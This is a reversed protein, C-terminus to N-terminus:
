LKQFNSSLIRKLVFCENCLVTKQAGVDGKDVYEVGDNKEGHMDAYLFERGICSARIRIPM